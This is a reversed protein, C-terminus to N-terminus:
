IKEEGRQFLIAEARFIDEKVTIKINDPGINVLKVKFGAHEALMCDDTASFEDQVAKYASIQYKKGCASGQKVNGCATHRRNKLFLKRCNRGLPLSSRNETKGTCGVAAATHNGCNDAAPTERMDTQVTNEISGCNQEAYTDHQEM